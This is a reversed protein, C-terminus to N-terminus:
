RADRIQRMRQILPQLEPDPNLWLDLVARAWQRALEPNQRTSLEARLAMARGVPAVQVPDSLVYDDVRPLANLFLDLAKSARATDGFRLAVRAAHYATQAPIMPAAITAMSDLQALAAARNGDSAMRQIAALRTSPQAHYESAGLVEFALTAAPGLIAERFQQRDVPVTAQDIERRADRFLNRLTDASGGFAAYVGLRLAAAGVSLPPPLRQGNPMFVYYGDADEAARTMALRIRGTLAAMPARTELTSEAPDPAGIALSDAIRGAEDYRAAKLSVRVLSIALRVRQQPENSVGLARRYEAAANVTSGPSIAGTAELAVANAELADPSSPFARSWATTVDLMVRRNRAIAAGLTAPMAPSPGMIEAFLHPVFAVTDGDLSPFAGFRTTDKGSVAYGAKFMGFNTFLLAPLRSYSRGRFAMFTAPTLALARRYAEIAAHQSSRFKWGTPSARDAVVLRDLSQCEGLGFWGQFSLSDAGLLARYRECAQPLRGDAIDLLALAIEQDIPALRSRLSVVRVAADRWAGRRFTGSWSMTQVTWLWAHPYDPDLETARAFHDRATALDWRALARHGEVYARWADLSTTGMADATPPAGAVHLLLSDALTRFKASLGDLTRGVEVQFERISEGSAVDYLSARVYLTDRVLHVSGWAATGARVSRAADLVRELTPARSGVVQSYASNTRMQDVLRMGRWQSFATSLLLQCNDGGLQAAAASDHEFPLVAYLTSDLDPTVPRFWWTLAIAAVTVTAAGAAWSTIRERRAGSSSAAAARGLEEAFDRTTAFRHAPENALARSLVKDIGRPIDRRYSRIRKPARRYRQAVLQRPTKGSFPPQGSLMEYFVCALSYQDSRGDVNDDGEAQEPSMYYPTGVALGQGTLREEAAFAVAHAIGFDGIFAHGGAVIVNEPKVDRHVVGREHAYGLADALERVVAVAQALSCRPERTMRARLTEGEMYGMVFYLSDEVEGSDYLPLVNPHQLGAAVRIERLFREAGLSRALEPRLIKLAVLRDHKMDRALFVTATAGRGLEREVVYRASLAGRMQFTGVRQDPM